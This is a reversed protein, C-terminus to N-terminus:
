SDKAGTGDSEKKTVTRNLTLVQRPEYVVLGQALKRLMPLLELFHDREIITNVSYWGETSLPSITPNKLAPLTGIIKQLNEKKVNVFIHLKKRGDVVGRLMNLIDCIKESKRPDFLAKKNAIFVATSELVTEIVKLNNRELTTGTEIVDFIADADEPPKAETAGFSLFIRVRSNTGTKWWPSVVLPNSEKFYKYYTQNAKMYRTATNLYETSVRIDKKSSWFDTILDSLSNITTWAKTVALVIRIRGYELNLLVEVDVNTEQIWDIGTIGVDQLGESVFLPIEQPRLIKLEIRPDNITPRYTRKKESVIYGARQLLDFTADALSGIPIAFRIKEIKVVELHLAPM